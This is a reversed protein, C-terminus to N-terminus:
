QTLHTGYKWDALVLQGLVSHQRFRGATGLLRLEQPNLLVVEIDEKPQFAPDLAANLGLFTFYRADTRNTMSQGECLLRLQDCRYGTEEYLERIAAQEPTESPEISGGPLELTYDNIAPRFQKVMVIEGEATTALVGASEPVKMIYFPAETSKSGEDFSQKIITFWETQFVTESSM